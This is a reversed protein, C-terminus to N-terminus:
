SNGHDSSVLINETSGYYDYIYTLINGNKCVGIGRIETGYYEHLIKQWTAGYNTSINIYEGSYGGNSGIKYIYGKPDMVVEGYSIGSRVWNSGLDTSLFLVSDEQIVINDLSDIVISKAASAYPGNTAHWLSQPYNAFNFLIIFSIFSLLYLYKM